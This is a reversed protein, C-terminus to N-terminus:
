EPQKNNRTDLINIDEPLVLKFINEPLTKNILIDYFKYIVYNENIDVISFETVIKNSITITIIEDDPTILEIKVTNDFQDIVKKQSKDWYQIILEDPRIAVTIDGSLIAQKSVPDYMTMSNVDILLIQGEPQSYKMLLNERNYYMMGKSFKNIDIEKWYNEQEFSSEYSYVASYTLLIDNYIQELGPDKALLLVPLFVILIIKNLYTAM